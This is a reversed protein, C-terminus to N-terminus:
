GRFTSNSGDDILNVHAANYMQTPIKMSRRPATITTTTSSLQHDVSTSSVSIAPHQQHQRQAHQDFPMNEVPSNTTTGSEVAHTREYLLKGSFMGLLITVVVILFVVLAIKVPELSSSKEKPLLGHRANNGDTDTRHDTVDSALPSSTPSSSSSTMDVVTSCTGATPQQKQRRHQNPCNRHIYFVAQASSDADYDDGNNGLLPSQINVRNFHRTTSRAADASLSRSLSKFIGGETSINAM